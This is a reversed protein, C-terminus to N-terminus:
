SELAPLSHDLSERPERLEVQPLRTGELRRSAATNRSKSASISDPAKLPLSAFVPKNVRLGGKFVPFRPTPPRSGAGRREALWLPSLAWISLAMWTALGCFGIIAGYAELGPVEDEGFRVTGRPEDYYFGRCSNAHGGPPYAADTEAPSPCWGVCNGTRASSRIALAAVDAPAM